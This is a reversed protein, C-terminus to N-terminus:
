KGMTGRSSKILNKRRRMSARLQFYKTNKDGDKMWDVRSRQKQIIEERTYLEVFRERIKIERYSPGVRGPVNLLIEREHKLANIEKRVNGFVRRDWSRLNDSLSGLKDEMSEMSDSEGATWKSALFEEFEPRREWMLEYRFTKPRSFTTTSDLTILIPGHDSCAATLNEVIM